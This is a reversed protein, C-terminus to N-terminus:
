NSPRSFKGSLNTVVPQRSHVSENRPGPSICCADVPDFEQLLQNRVNDKKMTSKMVLSM